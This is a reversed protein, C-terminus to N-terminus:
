EAVPALHEAFQPAPSLVAGSLDRRQGPGPRWRTRGKPLVTQNGPGLAKCVRARKTQGPAACVLGHDLALGGGPTPRSMREPGNSMKLRNPPSFSVFHHLLGVFNM